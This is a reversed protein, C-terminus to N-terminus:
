DRLEILYTQVASPSDHMGSAEIEIQRAIARYRVDKKIRQHIYYRRRALRLREQQGKNAITLIEERKRYRVLGKKILSNVTKRAGRQYTPNDKEGHLMTVVRGFFVAHEKKIFELVKIQQTTLDFNNTWMKQM